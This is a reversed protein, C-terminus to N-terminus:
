EDPHGTLYFLTSRDGFNKAVARVDDLTSEVVFFAADSPGRALACQYAVELYGGGIIYAVARRLLSAAFDTLELRHSRRDFTSRRRRVLGLQELRAVCRCVTARSLGLAACLDVQRPPLSSRLLIFLLDFRAPTLGFPALLHRGVATATLHARKLAFSLAHM